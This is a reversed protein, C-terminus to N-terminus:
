GRPAAPATGPAPTSTVPPSPRSVIVPRWWSVWGANPDPGPNDGLVDSYESLTDGPRLYCRTALERAPSPQPSEWGNAPAPVGPLFKRRLLAWTTGADAEWTIRVRRGSADVHFHPDAQRLHRPSAFVPKDMWDSEEVVVERRRLPRLYTWDDYQSGSADAVVVSTILRCVMPQRTGWYALGAAAAASAAGVVLAALWRRRWLPVGRIPICFGAALLGAPRRLPAPWGPRWGAVSEYVEPALAGVPGAVDRRIFWRGPGGRWPWDDGPRADSRVAVSVGHGLLNALALYDPADFVVADLAEWAAPPGTLPPTGTLPVPIVQRGPFLLAAASTAAGVDYGVVGVLVQDDQLPTLPADFTGASTGPIEWRPQSLPAATLWPVVVDVKGGQGPEISVTVAGEARLVLPKSAAASSQVRVPMYKGPRYFGQLPFTVQVQAACWPALALLIAAVHVGRRSM